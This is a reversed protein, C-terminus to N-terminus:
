KQTKVQKHIVLDINVIIIIVIIVVVVVPSLNYCKGSKNYKTTAAIPICMWPGPLNKKKAFLDTNAKM